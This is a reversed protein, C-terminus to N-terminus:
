FFSPSQKLHVPSLYHVLTQVWNVKDGTLIYERTYEFMYVFGSTHFSSLREKESWCLWIKCLYPLLLPILQQVRSVSWLYLCSGYKCTVKTRETHEIGVTPISQLWFFFSCHYTFATSHNPLVIVTWIVCNLNQVKQKTKRESAWFFFLLVM